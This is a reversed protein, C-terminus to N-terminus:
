SILKLGDMGFIHEVLERVIGQGGQTKLHITAIKLIEPHSDSPCASFGCTKIASYDNLDNGIFLTKSLTFNQEKSLMKLAQAKEKFGQYVPIKLKEGRRAVVMNTETSLIFLKLSTKRLFDFALGDARHCCVMENGEQDVFVKNDTLVGDFDFVIAELKNLDLM